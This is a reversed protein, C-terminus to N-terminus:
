CELHLVGTSVEIPTLGNFRKRPRNNLLSEITLIDRAHLKKFDTRKPVFDRVLGNVNESRGRQSSRYPDAFYIHANLAKETQQWASFESGNDYTITHINAGFVRTTDRITQQHIKRSDYRMVLGIAVLGTKRDVHTLLRDKTDQGFITDGELDGSRALADVAAPRDHISHKHRNTNNYRLGATNKYPTGRRRLYERLSPHADVYRYIASHSM